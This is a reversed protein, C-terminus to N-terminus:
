VLQGQRVFTLVAAMLASPVSSGSIPSLIWLHYQPDLSPDGPHPLEAELYLPPPLTYSIMYRVKFIYIGLM